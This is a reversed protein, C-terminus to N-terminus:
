SPIDPNSDPSAASIKPIVSSGSINEAPMARGQYETLNHASSASTRISPPAVIRVGNPKVSRADASVTIM